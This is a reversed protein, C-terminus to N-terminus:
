KRRKVKYTFEEATTLMDDVYYGVAGKSQKLVDMLEQNEEQHIEDKDIKESLEYSDIKPKTGYFEDGYNDHSNDIIDKLHQKMEQESLRTKTVIIVKMSKKNPDGSSYFHGAATSRFYGRQGKLTESIKQRRHAEKASILKHKKTDYYRGSDYQRLNRTLQKLIEM